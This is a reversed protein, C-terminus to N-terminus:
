TSVQIDLKNQVKGLHGNELFIQVPDAPAKSEHAMWVVFTFILKENNIVKIMHTYQVNKNLTLCREFRILQTTLIFNIM